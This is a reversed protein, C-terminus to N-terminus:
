DYETIPHGFEDKEVELVPTAKTYLFDVFTNSNEDLLAYGKNM